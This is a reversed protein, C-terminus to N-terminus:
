RHSMAPVVGRSMESDDNARAFATTAPRHMNVQVPQGSRNSVFCGTEDEGHGEQLRDWGTTLDLFSGSRTACSQRKAGQRMRWLSGIRGLDPCGSVQRSVGYADAVFASSSGVHVYWCGTSVQGENTLLNGILGVTIPQQASQRDLTAIFYKFDGVRM